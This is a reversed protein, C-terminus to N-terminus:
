HQSHGIFRRFTIIISHNMYQRVLWVDFLMRAHNKQKSVFWVYFLMRAQNKHERDLLVDLFM